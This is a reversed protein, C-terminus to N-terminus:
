LQIELQRFAEEISAKEAELRKEFKKKNEIVIKYLFKPTLFANDVLIQIYIKHKDFLSFLVSPNGEIIPIINEDEIPTNKFEEMIEEPINEAGKFSAIMKEKFWEKIIGTVKPHDELLKKTNNM